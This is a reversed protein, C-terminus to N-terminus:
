VAWALRGSSMRGGDPTGSRVGDHMIRALASNRFAGTAFANPGGPYIAVDPMRVEARRSLQAVTDVLWRETPNAATTIIKAGTSWKAMPKSILLSAISGAFGFIASFVLLTRLDIGQSALLQDVGLIKVVTTLVLLVSLNTILFLAIRKVV